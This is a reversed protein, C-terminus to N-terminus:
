ASGIARTCPSPPVPAHIRDPDRRLVRVPLGQPLLEQGLVGMGLVLHAEEHVAPPQEAEVQPVLHQLQHASSQIATGAPVRWQNSM